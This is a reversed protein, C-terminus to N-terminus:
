ITVGNSSGDLVSALELLLPAGDGTWTSGHMCALTGPKLEALRQLMRRTDKAHAFYDMGQKRMAESPGLIDGQTLAPTNSGPQTFLDGCFLTQSLEDFIYGCEWGHPLHPTDLWRLTRKGITLTEGDRLSRPAKDFGDGNIMSNIASCVPVAQPAAALFSNISGCEDQEYHSFGIYRLKSLPIVKEIAHKVTEFLARSGTHFLMPEEDVILYQNFSFGGPVLSPPISTHIRFINDGVEDLRTEFSPRQATM